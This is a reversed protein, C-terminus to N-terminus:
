HLSEGLAALLRREEDDRGGPGLESRWPAQAGVVADDREAGEIAGVNRLHNALEGSAMRQAFLHDIPHAFAGATHRQEHLLDNAKQELAAFFATRARDRRGQLLREGRPEVPKAFRALDRLDAGHQPSIEGVRQQPSNASDVIGGELGREVPEGARVQEDCIAGARSRAIVELVRQDLVRGVVAQELAAALGQVATRRFDQAIVGLAGCGLRFDDGMMEGLCSEVVERDLPPALRAVLSQAAGGELLRDCM